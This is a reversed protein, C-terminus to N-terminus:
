SGAPARRPPPVSRWPSVAALVASRELALGVAVLACAGVLVTTVLQTVTRPHQIQVALATGAAFVWAALGLRRDAVAVRAYVLVQVVAFATGLAAFLAVTRGLDAYREGAALAVVRGAGVGTLLVVASGLGATLGVAAVVARDRAGPATMRPYLLTALFAPGWFAIKTFISGVAYLGSLAPPLGHRALLVDLNVFVLLGATSTSSGLVDRAQRGLGSTRLAGFAGPVLAVAVGLSVVAGVLTGGIVAAVSWGAVAPLAAGACRMAAAVVLVISLRGFREGGQLVGQVAATGAGPVLSLGLAVPAWPGGLHLYRDLLPAAVVVVLGVVGGAALGLTGLRADVPAQRGRAATERAAVLQVALAPVLGIVALNLLAGVAGYDAPPLLRSLALVLVYGLVNALLTAAALVAGLRALPRAAGARGSAQSPAGGPPAADVTPLPPQEDTELVARGVATGELDSM